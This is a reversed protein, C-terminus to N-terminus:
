WMDVVVVWDRCQVVRGRWDMFRPLANEGSGFGGLDCVRLYRPVPEGVKVINEDRM